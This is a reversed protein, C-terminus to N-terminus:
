YSENLINRLTSPWNYEDKDSVIFKMFEIPEVTINKIYMCNRLQISAIELITEFCKNYEKLRFMNNLLDTNPKDILMRDFMNDIMYSNYEDANKTKEIILHYLIRLVYFIYNNFYEITNNLVSDISSYIIDIQEIPYMAIISHIDSENYIASYINFVKIKNSELRFAFRNVPSLIDIYCGNNGRNGLGYIIHDLNDVIMQDFYDALPKVSRGSFDNYVLLINYKIAINNLRHLDDTIDVTDPRMGYVVTNVYQKISYVIHKNGTNNTIFMNKDVTIFDLGKSKDVTIFPPSELMGDILIHFTTMNKIQNNMEELFKPYQHYYLDELQMTGNVEKVMHAASGVGIYICIPDDINIINSEISDIVQSLNM